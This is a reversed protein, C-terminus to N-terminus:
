FGFDFPDAKKEPDKKRARRVRRPQPKPKTESDEKVEALNSDTATESDAKAPSDLAAKEDPEEPKSPAGSAEEGQELPRAVVAAQAEASADSAEAPTDDQGAVVFVVVLLLLAAVTLGLGLKSSKVSEWSDTVRETVSIPGSLNPPPESRIPQAAPTAGDNPLWSARLSRSCIDEYVGRAGLWGALAEGFARASQWRKDRDKALGVEILAWLAEDDIGYEKIPKPEQDIIAWMISNYSEGTFPMVGTLCEYMLVALAFM